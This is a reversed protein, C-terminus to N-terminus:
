TLAEAPDSAASGSDLKTDNIPGNIILVEPAEVAGQQDRMGPNCLSKTAKVPLVSWNRYLSDLRPHQYYSVVVRTKQFRSLLTALREHDEAAFDHLYKAGKQVYPPDCYIVTGAKDEIRELMEFADRQLIWVDRLRLAWAPISDVANRFRTAPDGGNSTYRVCFASNSARTGAVGNRGMWSEIFYWYARDLNSLDMSALKEHSDQHISECFATRSLREFLTPGDYSAIVRALNVVDGHLDNVTEASSKKKALVIALSGAFPEWYSRHEGLQEIIAQAITRKGGFYPAIAKIKPYPNM